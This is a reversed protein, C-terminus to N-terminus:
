ELALDESTGGFCGSLVLKQQCRLMCIVVANQVFCEGLYMVLTRKCKRCSICDRWKTPVGCMDSFHVHEHDPLLTRTNDRRKREFVKPSDHLRGPNDFVIHVQNTGGSFYSAVFRRLLFQAYEKM